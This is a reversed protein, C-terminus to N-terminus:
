KCISLYIYYKNNSHIYCIEEIGRLALYLKFKEFGHRNFISQCKDLMKKNYGIAYLMRRNLQGFISQIFTIFISGQYHSSFIIELQEFPIGYADLDIIDYKLLDLAHLWKKNDGQLYIGKRNRDKDIRTVKINKQTQNIITNWILGDGSFADLVNIIEQDPLHTIRLKVKDLLFSNDTKAKSM